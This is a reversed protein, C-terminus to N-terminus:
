ALTAAWKHDAIAVVVEAAQVPSTVNVPDTGAVSSLDM